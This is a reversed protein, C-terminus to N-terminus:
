AQVSYLVLHIYTYIHLKHRTQDKEFTHVRATFLLFYSLFFLRRRASTPIFFSPLGRLKKAYNTYTYLIKALTCTVGCLLSCLRSIKKYLFLQRPVQIRFFPSLVRSNYHPRDVSFAFYSTERMNKKCPFLKRASAENKFRKQIKMDFNAAM